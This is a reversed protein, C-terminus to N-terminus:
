HNASVLAVAERAAEAIRTFEGNEIQQRTAIWSGGVALVEPISLYDKINGPNVGGTPMIRIGATAFPAVISKITKVGGFAEAPFFKLHKQGAELASIVESPTVAGPVFPLGADEATEILLQSHGPSVGFKAGRAAADKVQAPTLLSGAGLLFDPLAEAIASIADLGAETRLTIEMVPLGGETLAEALPVAHEARDIEIVPVIRMKELQEFIDM